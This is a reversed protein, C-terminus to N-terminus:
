SDLFLTYFILTPLGVGLELLLSLIMEPLHSFIFLTWKPLVWLSNLNEELFMCQTIVSSSAM